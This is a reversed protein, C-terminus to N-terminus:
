KWLDGDIQEFDGITSLFERAEEPSWTGALSDLDHHIASSDNSLSQPMGRRLAEYAIVSMAVGRRRAEAQLRDITARDINSITLSTEM